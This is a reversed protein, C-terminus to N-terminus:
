NESPRGSLRTRETANGQSRFYAWIKGDLSVLEPGDFGFGGETRPLVPNDQFKEWHLLDTSRALGSSWRAQRYPPRTSGEFMMYYVGGQKLISRKGVTGEDWAEPPGTKLVPNGPHKELRTLDSGAAVGIQVRAGDFGHYFLYWTTGEKWLSPTGVNVSEWGSGHRLIPNDPHKTFHIGDTSIALGIDGPSSPDLGAGEYVLYFTEGDKWVGPFSALRGDWSAPDSGVDLVVGQDSFNTGDPSAAAGVASKGGSATEYNKIYYARLGAQTRPLSIFHMGFSSEVAEAEKSFAANGQFLDALTQARATQMPYAAAASLFVGLLSRARLAPM